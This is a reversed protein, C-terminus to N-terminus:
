QQCAIDAPPTNNVQSRWEDLTLNRGALACAARIWADPQVEWRLIAGDESATVLESGDPTAALATSDWPPEGAVRGPYPLQIDGIREGTDINWLELQGLETLRAVLRSNPVATIGLAYGADPAITSLRQTGATNWVELSNDDRGVLLRDGAFVVSVAAQGSLVHQHGSALETVQVVSNDQVVAVTSADPSIATFNDAQVGGGILQSEGPVAMLVAGTDWQRVQVDGHDSVVVVRRGDPTLRAAVPVNHSPGTWAYGFGDSTWLIASHGADPSELLLLQRSDSSWVPVGNDLPAEAKTGSPRPGDLNAVVFNYGANSEGSLAIHRGDPSLGLLPQDGSDPGDTADIGAGVTIRAPQNLNWSMLTSGTASVLRQSGDVFAVADVNGTGTLQQAKATGGVTPQAVELAGGGAVAVMTGDPSVALQDPEDISLSASPERGGDYGAPPNPHEADLYVEGFIAWATYGNDASFGCCSHSSGPALYQGGSAIASLSAVSLQTWLGGGNNVDVTADDPLGIDFLSPDIAGSRLEAGTSGDVLVLTSDEPTRHEIVAITNGSPSIALDKEEQPRAGPYLVQPIPVTTLSSGSAGNWIFLSNGNSAVVRDGTANTVISQIRAGGTSVQTLTNDDLNWRFLRGDTTGAVVVPAQTAGALATSRDGIPLVRALHPSAAVAQLLASLTQPDPDLRYGAVAFLQAEDLHDGLDAVALTALERATAIRAQTQAADRQGLAVFTAVLAVVLSVALTTVGGRALRVARRQQRIHEGVLLDKPTQRLAAAVDAVCDRLRPNARDVTSAEHLWRLDVWRPEEPLAAHLAPPLSTTVSWDVGASGWALQGGTLVILLRQVSRNTLWWAVERDVWPSRAAEPSAMLLFWDSDALAQEISSWLGPNATLSANDRFVRLSRVQYWPKAFKELERQFTPALTGDLAHSYSM